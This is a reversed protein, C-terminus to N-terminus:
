NKFTKLLFIKEKFNKLGDGIFSTKLKNMSAVEELHKVLQPYALEETVFPAKEFQVDKPIHAYLDKLEKLQITALMTKQEAETTPIYYKTLERKLSKPDYPLNM